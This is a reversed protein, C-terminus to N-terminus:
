PNNRELAEIRWEHNDQKREYTDFRETLRRVAETNERTAKANDSEAIARGKWESILARGGIIAAVTASLTTVVFEVIVTNM